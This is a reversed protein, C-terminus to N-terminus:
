FSRLGFMSQAAEQIAKRADPYTKARFMDASTTHYHGNEVSYHSDVLFHGGEEIVDIVLRYRPSRSHRKKFISAKRRAEAPDLRQPM